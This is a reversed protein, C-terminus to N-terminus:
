LVQMCLTQWRKLEQLENIDMSWPADIGISHNLCFHKEIIEAGRALAIKACEIGITHDSFGYRSFDIKGMKDIVAPYQSICYLFIPYDIYGSFSHDATSKPDISIFTPKKTEYVALWVDKDRMGCAIKYRKVGIQECWKVREVDFVSFFVEIGNDKGFDFLEKAQDFSLEVNPIGPHDKYLKAHEYLQFKVLDSGGDRAQIILRKALDINGCHNQGIEAILL